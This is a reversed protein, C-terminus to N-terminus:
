SLKRDASQPKTVRPVNATLHSVHSMLRPKPDGISEREGIQSEQITAPLPRFPVGGYRRSVTFIYVTGHSFFGEKTHVRLSGSLTRM